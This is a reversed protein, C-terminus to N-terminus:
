AATATKLLEAETWESVPRVAILQGRQMVGIRDCAQLLEPLYSSVFIISRGEDALKRMLAYLQSKTRVDIGRTPEDLLLVQCDQQLLRGLLVKQQNGGSLERMPQRCDRARINLEEIRRKAAQEQKPANLWFKNGLSREAGVTMNSVISEELMLGEEKRHESLYGMGRALSKEPKPHEYHQEEIFINGDTHPQLGFCTRLTETRGAGVLGAIGLIEGARVEFSVDRPKQNSQLHEVRLRSKSQKAPKTSPYFDQRKQGIMQEILLDISASAMDGEAVVKGDRLMTYRDAIQQCEELFHSIYIIGIGKAKLARLVEFLRRVDQTSLSSTPEDLILVRPNSALARALEVIQQEPLSLEGVLADCPLNGHGLEQLARQSLARANDVSRWGWCSRENGLVINDAVSLDPALSFEQHVMMVGYAKAELPYRPHYPKGELYM